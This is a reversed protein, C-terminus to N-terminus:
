KTKLVISSANFSAFCGYGGEINGVINAPEAFPNEDAQDYRNISQYYDYYTKDINLLSMVVEQRIVKGSYKGRWYIGDGSQMKGGDQNKDSQIMLRSNEENFYLLKVIDNRVIGTDTLLDESQKLYGTARYYNVGVPDRWQISTYREMTSDM